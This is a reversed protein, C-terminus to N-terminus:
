TDVPYGPPYRTGQVEFKALTLDIEAMEADTLDVETSNEQVREATSAGPIPIIVPMGPRRSLARTWGIALQATTCGKKQAMDDIQKKLQLNIDFAETQFRPLRRRMDNEPIDELSKVKGTLM